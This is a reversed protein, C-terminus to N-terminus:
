KKSKLLAELEEMVKKDDLSKVLQMLAVRKEEASDGSEYIPTSEFKYDGMNKEIHAMLFAEPINLACLPHGRPDKLPSELFDLIHDLSHPSEGHLIGGHHYAELITNKFDNDVARSAVCELLVRILGYQKLKQYHGGNTPSHLNKWENLAGFIHPFTPVTFAFRSGMGEVSEAWIAGNHLEVMEKAISLGLGLGQHQGPEAVGFQQFKHFITKLENKPIGPGDDLVSFEVYQGNEVSKATFRIRKKAFRLANSTLNHLAQEIKSIDIYLVPMKRPIQQNIQIGKRHALPRFELACDKLIKQPEVITRHLTIKGSTLRAADLLNDVLMVLRKVAQEAIALYKKQQPRPRGVDESMLIDLSEKLLAIPTKIEHSVHALFDTLKQEITKGHPDMHTSPHDLLKELKEIDTKTGFPTTTPTNERSRSKKNM